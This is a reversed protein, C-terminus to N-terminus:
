PVYEFKFADAIVTCSSCAVDNTITVSASGDAAFAYTGLLNWQGYGATQDVRLSATGGAHVLAVPVAASEVRSTTSDGAWGHWEYVRYNGAVHIGPRYLAWATATGTVGPATHSSFYRWDKQWRLAATWTPNADSYGADLDETFGSFTTDLSGPSTGAYANDVIIDAVVVRGPSDVLVVGEGVNQAQDSADQTGDDYIARATTSDFFGSAFQSGDNWSPDQNGQFRYYPGAYGPLTQLDADTITLAANTPNLVAAGHDFFRVWGGSALSAAPGTPYGLQVDYEDYYNAWHHNQLDGSLFYVDDMLATALTWRVFRFYDKRRAPAHVGDFFVDGSVYNIRPTPGRSGWQAMLTHWLPFPPDSWYMNEWGVGNAYDISMLSVDTDGGISWYTILKADPDGFRQEYYARLRSRAADQGEWWKQKVWDRRLAPTSGHSTEDFDNLGDRDLDIDPIGWPFQQTGDSSVGDWASWDSVEDIYRPLAQNYREGNMQFGNVTGTYPLCYETIDAFYTAANYITVDTGASTKLRWEAPLPGPGLDSPSFPEAANWDTTWLVFRDPAAQKIGAAIAADRLSTVVLQFRSLWDVNSGGWQLTGIRPFPHGQFLVCTGSGSPYQFYGTACNTCSAGTYGTACTSCAAGTFHGSCSCV